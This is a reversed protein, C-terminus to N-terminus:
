TQLYAFFGFCSAAIILLTGSVFQCFWRIFEVHPRGPLRLSVAIYELWIEMQTVCKIVRSYILSVGIGTAGLFLLLLPLYGRNGSNFHALFYALCVGATTLFRWLLNDDSIEESAAAWGASDYSSPGAAVPPPGKVPLLRQRLM